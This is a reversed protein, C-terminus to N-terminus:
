SNLNTRTVKDYDSAEEKYFEMLDDFTEHKNCGYEDKEMNSLLVNM